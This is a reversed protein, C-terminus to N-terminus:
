DKAKFSDWLEKLTKSYGDYEEDVEQMLRSASGQPLGLQKSFEYISNQKHAHGMNIAALLM